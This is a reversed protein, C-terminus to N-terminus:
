VLYGARRSAEPHDHVWQHHAPCLLLINAVTNTGGQSRRHRHHMHLDIKKQCDDGYDPATGTWECVWPVLQLLEAKVEAMEDRDRRGKKGIPNLKGSRKLPTRRIIATRKM